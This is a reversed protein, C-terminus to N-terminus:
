NVRKSDFEEPFHVKLYAMRYSLLTYSLFHAKLFTHVIVQMLSEFVKEIITEAYGNKVAEERFWITLEEIREAKKKGLDRRVREATLFDCGTMRHLIEIVQEHYIIMGYTGALIDALTKDPGISPITKTKRAILEELYKKQNIGLLTKLMTLEELNQPLLKRLYSQDEKRELEFVGDTRGEGLLAYTAQDDNKIDYVSFRSFLEGRNRIKDQIVQLDSLCELGFIDFRVPGTGKLSFCDFQSVMDFSASTRTLPIQELLPLASIVIGKTLIRDRDPVRVSNVEQLISRHETLRPNTKELKKLFDCINEDMFRKNNKQEYLFLEETPIGIEKCFKYTQSKAGSLAGVTSYTIQYVTNENGWKTRIYGILEDYRNQSVDIFVTFSKGESPFASESFLGNEIPDIETIGLAYMLVSCPVAGRGPGLLIGQARAWSVYDSVILLEPIRGDKELLDTEYEARIQIEQTVTEYRAALGQDVLMRFWSVASKQGSGLKPLPLTRGPKPIRCNCLDSIHVTNEIATNYLEDDKLVPYDAFVEDINKFWGSGTEPVENSLKQFLHYEDSNEKRCYRVSALLVPPL